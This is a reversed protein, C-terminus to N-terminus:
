RAHNQQGAIHSHPINQDEGTQNRPGYVTKLHMHSVHLINLIHSVGTQGKLGMSMKSYIMALSQQSCRSRFIDHRSNISMYKKERRELDRLFTLTLMNMTKPPM